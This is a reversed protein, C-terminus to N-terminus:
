DKYKWKYGKATQARGKCVNVISSISKLGLEDCAEKITSFTKIYKGDLSYQEVPHNRHHMKENVKKVKEELLNINDEESYIWIFRGVQSIEGKCAKALNGTTLNPYMRTVARLSPFNQIFIGDLTYQNVPRSKYKCSRIIREEHSINAKNLVNFVTNDSCHIISLIEQINKGEEWLKLIEKEFISFNIYNRGGPTMNYGKIYKPDGIYCHYYNIWYKEKEDLDNTEEIIEFSFNQKGYKLLARHFLTNKQTDYALGLHNTHEDWRIKYDRTTIGIYIAGNIQNTIKYVFGM